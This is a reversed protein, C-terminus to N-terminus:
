NRTQVAEIARDRRHHNGRRQSRRHRHAHGAPLRALRAGARRRLGTRPRRGVRVRVMYKDHVGFASADDPTMHIHRLACIVGHDLTVSGAPGELTFGPTDDLDGSERIPPHIGLKFQETM